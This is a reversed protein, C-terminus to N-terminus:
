RRRRRRAALFGAMGTAMFLVAPPAPVVTASASTINFQFTSSNKNAFVANGQQLITNAFIDNLATVSLFSTDTAIEADVAGFFEIEFTRLPEDKNNLPGSFVEGNLSLKETNFISSLKRIEMSPPRNGSFVHGDVRVELSGGILEYNGFEDDRRATVVNADDFIFSGTVVDGVEIPDVGIVTDSSTVEGTFDIRVVGASAATTFFLAGLALLVTKM